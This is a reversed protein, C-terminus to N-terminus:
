FFLSSLAKLVVGKLHPRSVVNIHQLNLHVEVTTNHIERVELEDHNMHIFSIYIGRYNHSVLPFVSSKM